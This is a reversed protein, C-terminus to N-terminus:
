CWQLYASRSFIEKLLEVFCPAFQDHEGASSLVQKIEQNQSIM